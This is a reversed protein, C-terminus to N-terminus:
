IREALNKRLKYPAGSCLEVLYRGFTLHSCLLKKGLVKPLAGNNKECEEMAIKVTEM